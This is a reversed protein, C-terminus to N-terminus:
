ITADEPTRRIHILGAISLLLMLVAGALSALASIAAIQGLQWFAYANLLMGRLSQGKFVTEVIAAKKTADSQLEENTPDAAARAAAVRNATSAEAYTPMANLHVQIYHDAYMQAQKGSTMIKDANDAFFKKVDASAEPDGNDGPMVIRQAALQESVAGDAFTAGWNLLGAAVLLLASLGFGVFTLIKDFTKRRM